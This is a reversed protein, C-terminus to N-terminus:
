SIQGFAKSFGKLSAIVILTKVTGYPRFGVRLESALKILKILKQTLELRVECGSNRCQVYQGSIEASNDIQMVMGSRLDVGLPLRMIMFPKRLKKGSAIVTTESYFIILSLLNGLKNQEGTPRLTQELRCSAPNATKVPSSPDTCKVQWPGQADQAKSPAVVTHGAIQLFSVFLAVAVMRLYRNIGYEAEEIKVMYSYRFQDIAAIM